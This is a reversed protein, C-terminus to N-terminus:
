QRVSSCEKKKAHTTNRGCRGQRSRTHHWQDIVESEPGWSYSSREKQLLWRNLYISDRRKEISLIVSQHKHEAGKELFVDDFIDDDDESFDKVKDEKEISKDYPIEEDEAEM